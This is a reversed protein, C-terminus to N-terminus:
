DNENLKIWQEFGMSEWPMGRKFYKPWPYNRKNEENFFPMKSLKGIVKAPTGCIFSDDEFVGGVNSNASTLCHKGIKTGPMLVCGTTIVSYDDVSVGQVLNSPPTADNTLVVFPYIFVFSGIKSKQGINVYSQFKCFNGIECEGQIDNYSGFSCNKGAKTNERITVHHGTNLNEGFSSGAYIVTYSRILSSSSIITKSNVYEIQNGYYSNTPEGIVCNDAIITNDGIIVNSYITTNDGIQVNQGLVVSADIFVNRNNFKM